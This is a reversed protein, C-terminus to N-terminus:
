AWAAGLPKLYKRWQLAKAMAESTTTPKGGHMVARGMAELAYQDDRQAIRPAQWQELADKALEDAVGFDCINEILLAWRCDFFRCISPRDSYISCKGDILKVCSGDPKKDLVWTGTEASFHASEKFRAAEKASL